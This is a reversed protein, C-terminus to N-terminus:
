FSVQSYNQPIVIEKSQTSISNDQNEQKKIFGQIKGVLDAIIGKKKEKSTSASLKVSDQNNAHLAPIYEGTKGLSSGQVSQASQVIKSKNIDM